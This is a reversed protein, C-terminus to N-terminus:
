AEDETTMGKNRSEWKRGGREDIGLLRRVLAHGARGEDGGRAMSTGARCLMNALLNACVTAGRRRKTDYRPDRRKGVM